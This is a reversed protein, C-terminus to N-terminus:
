CCQLPFLAMWMERDREGHLEPLVTLPLVYLDIVQQGSHVVIQDEEAGWFFLLEPAGQQLFGVGLSDWGAGTETNM